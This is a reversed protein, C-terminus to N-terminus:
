PHGANVTPKDYTAQFRSLYTEETGSENLTKIMFPHQIKNFAKKFSVSMIMPIKKRETKNIHYKVNVSKCINVWGQM